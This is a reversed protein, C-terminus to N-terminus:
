KESMFRRYIPRGIFIWFVFISGFYVFVRLILVMTQTDNPITNDLEVNHSSAIQDSLESFAQLIAINYRDEDSNKDNLSLVGIAAQKVEKDNYLRSVHDGSSILGVRGLQDMGSVIKANPAFVFAVYSDSLNDIKQSYNKFNFGVPLHETTAIIYGDIGTKLKLEKYINNIITVVEHKLLNDHQLINSNANLFLSFLIALLTIRVSVISM